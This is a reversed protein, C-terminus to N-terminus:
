TERGDESMRGQDTIGTKVVMMTRCLHTELAASAADQDRKRCCELIHQHEKHREKLTGRLTASLRRYRDAADWLPSITRILWPSGSIEYIGLHFQSHMERGRAADEVEYARVYKELVGALRRYDEETFRAAAARIALTELAIRVAYLDELDAASIPSVRAGRHPIQNVLGEGQLRGIAERIPMVSMSFRQALETLVLQKGPELEGSLIVERLERMAVDVLTRDEAVRRLVM